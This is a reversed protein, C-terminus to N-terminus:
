IGYNRKGSTTSANRRKEIRLKLRDGYDLNALSPSTRSGTPLAPSSTSPCPAPKSSSYQGRIYQLLDEEVFRWDDGFKGAPVVGDKAHARLTVPHIGVFAAAEITNMIRTM